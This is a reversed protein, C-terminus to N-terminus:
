GSPQIIIKGRDFHFIEPNVVYMMGALFGIIFLIAATIIWVNARSKAIFAFHSSMTRAVSEFDKDIVKPKKVNEKKQEVGALHRLLDGKSVIGLLTNAQDVVPVSDQNLFAARAAAKEIEMDAPAFFVQKNMVEGATIRTIRGAEYPLGQKAGLVFDTENILKAYTPLYFKHDVSFLEDETVVGEIIGYDNVVPIGSINNAHLLDAVETLTAEPKVTIVERVMIDQIKM